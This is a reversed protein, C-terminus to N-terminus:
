QSFIILYLEPLKCNDIMEQLEELVPPIPSLASQLIETFVKVLKGLNKNQVILLHKIDAATKLGKNNSSELLFRLQNKHIELQQM